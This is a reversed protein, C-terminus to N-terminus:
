EDENGGNYKAYLEPETRFVELRAKEISINKSKAIETAKVDVIEKSSMGDTTASGISKFLASDEAAKALNTLLTIVKEAPKSKLIEVLEKEAIPLVSLEKAKAIAEANVKEEEAQKAKAILEDNHKKITELMPRMAEPAAKIVEEFDPEEGKSKAVQIDLKGQLETATAEAAEKAKSIGEISEKNKAIEADKDSCAKKLDDIENDKAKMDEEKANKAKEIEGEYYSKIEGAVEPKMQAFIQQVVESMNAGEKGKILLIDAVSCCGEEVLDVRNIKNDILLTNM